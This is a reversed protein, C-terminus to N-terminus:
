RKFHCQRRKCFSAILTIAMTESGRWARKVQPFFFIINRSTTLLGEARTERQIMQHCIGAPIPLCQLTSNPEWKFGEVWLEQHHWCNGRLGSGVLSLLSSRVCAPTNIVRVGQLCLEQFIVAKRVKTHMQNRKGKFHSFMYILFCLLIYLYM